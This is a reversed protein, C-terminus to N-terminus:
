IESLFKILGNQRKLFEQLGWRHTHYGSESNQRSCIEGAYKRIGLIIEDHSYDKKFKKYEQAIIRNIKTCKKMIPKGVIVSPNKVPSEVKITNWKDIIEQLEKTIKVDNQKKEKFLQQLEFVQSELLQIRDEVNSM